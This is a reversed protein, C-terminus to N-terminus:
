KSTHGESHENKPFWGTQRIKWLIACYLCDEHFDVGHPAHKQCHPDEGWCVLMYLMNAVAIANGHADNEKMPIDAAKELLWDLYTQDKM